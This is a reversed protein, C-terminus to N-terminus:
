GFVAAGMAPTPRPPEQAKPRTNRAIEALLRNGEAQLSGGGFYSTASALSVQGLGGTHRALSPAVAAAMPVDPAPAPDAPKGTRRAMTLEDARVSIKQILDQLEGKALELSFFEKFREDFSKLDDSKARDASDDVVRVGTGALMENAMEVQNQRGKQSVEDKNLETFLEDAAKGFKEGIGPLDRMSRFTAEMALTIARNIADGMERIKEDLGIIFDPDKMMEMAASVGKGLMLIAEAFGIKLAIGAMEMLEALTMTDLAAQAMEIGRAIAEGIKAAKGQMGDISASLDDLVPKLAAGIPKGFELYLQAIGDQLTSWKGAITEAQRAMMGAFLGGGTTLDKFAQELNAFTIKGQSGMKKVESEAVGLQKAFQQIVPIGRGTLQNIDEAFLTGQVRAKGYIEAIEGLGAGVGSSIDGIRRLEDPVVSAASGFALLKKAAEGMEVFELPTEAADKRLQEILATAQTTDGTLVDMSVKLQEDGAAAQLSKSLTSKVLAVIGVATLAPLLAKKLGGALGGALGGGLRDGKKRGGKAFRDLRSNAQGLAARFKSIELDLEATIEAM